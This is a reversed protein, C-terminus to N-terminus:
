KNDVNFNVQPYWVGPNTKMNGWFGQSMLKVSKGGIMEIVGPNSLAINEVKILDTKSLAHPLEKELIDAQTLTASDPISNGHITNSQQANVGPIVTTPSLLIMGITLATLIAIATKIKNNQIKM